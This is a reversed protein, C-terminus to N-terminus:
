GTGSNVQQLMTQATENPILGMRQALNINTTKFEPSSTYAPQARLYQDWQDTNWGKRVAQDIAQSATSADPTNAQPVGYVRQYSSAYTAALGKYESTSSYDPQDRLHQAFATQDWRHVIALRIQNRASPTIQADNGYVTKYVSEYAPSSTLWVPSKYFNPNASPNSLEQQIQYLSTGTNLYRNIEAPTPLRGAYALYTPDLAKHAANQALATNAAKAQQVAVTGAAKQQPTTGSVTVKYGKLLGEPGTGVYRPNYNTTYAQQLSAPSGHSLQYAMFAIANAPDSAWKADITEGTPAFTTGFWTKPNIQGLGFGTGQKNPQNIPNGKSDFGHEFQLTAAVWLAPVGFEGAWQQIATKYQKLAPHAGLFRDFDNGRGKAPAPTYTIGGPPPKVAM